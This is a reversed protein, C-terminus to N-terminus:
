IPNKLLFLSNYMGDFITESKENIQFHVDEFNVNFACSINYIIYFNNLDSLVDNWKDIKKIEIKKENTQFYFKHMNHTEESYKSFLEIFNSWFILNSDHYIIRISENKNLFNSIYNFCPLLNEINFSKIHFTKYSYIVILNTKTKLFVAIEINHNLLSYDIYFYIVTIEDLNFFINEMVTLPYIKMIKKRLLIKLFNNLILEEDQKLLNSNSFINPCRKFEIKLDIFSNKTQKKSFLEVKKM